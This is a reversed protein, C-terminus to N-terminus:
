LAVRTMPLMTTSETHIRKQCSHLDFRAASFKFARTVLVAVTM